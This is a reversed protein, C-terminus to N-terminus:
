LIFSFVIHVDYILEARLERFRYIHHTYDIM